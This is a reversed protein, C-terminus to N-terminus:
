HESGPPHDHPKSEDVPTNTVPKADHHGDGEAQSHPKSKDAVPKAAAKVDDHGQGPAHTHAKSEDVVQTDHHGAEMGADDHTMGPMDKMDGHDEEVQEGGGHSHGGSEAVMTQYQAPTMKPMQQLFAVMNWIYDDKMNTGWAAMGSAKVGHKIVWFARAPDPAGLKALNPPAPYLIKSMETSEIGPALHCGVCMAAYNGAGQKIMAPDTLAPVVLDDARVAIARDRTTEILKFVLASHPEDAGPHILGFYITGAGILLGAGGLILSSKIFNM